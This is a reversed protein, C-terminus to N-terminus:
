ATLLGYKKKSRGPLDGPSEHHGTAVEDPLSVGPGCGPAEAVLALVTDIDPPKAIHHDFGARMARDIDEGSAYGSLAILRAAPPAGSARLRRAVEYGDIVPLGIDCLIVEPAHERAAAVGAEGDHAVHVEHGGLTELLDRLSEAADVNDEIVLVRCRKSQSAVPEETCGSVAAEVSPLTVVFETGKGIGDSRVVVTGGHLEAIGRVLSLGLGLGGTSRHLTRESQVFPEFLKDLMDPAVGVGDDRIRLFVQGAGTEVSLSVHGGADTFKAANQFLNGLVQALRTRDGNVWVAQDPVNVDLSLSRNVFLPRIDEVTERVQQTLDMLATRLRLKGTSIRKVDLLDDVLRALHDVQRAMITRARAAQPSAPDVRSLVHVSNRIPALPNRLEHSLMGLFEDKRRDSERLAEEALKRGTIDLAMGAMRVARGSDDHFAEGKSAVWRVSGDRLAVRMEVEYPVKKALSDQVARDVRDRDDPHIAALFVGYSMATDPSLGFLAKCRDSWVWEDAVINSHWSGMKAADEALRLKEESERLSRATSDQADLAQVFKQRSRKMQRATTLALAPGLLLAFVLGVMLAWRTVAEARAVRGVRLGEEFEVFERFRSRIDNSVSEGDLLHFPADQVTAADRSRSLQREAYQRWRALAARVSTLRAVQAPEDRVLEQLGEITPLLRDDAEGYSKLFQRDGTILHARLRSERDVLLREVLAARGIVVDTHDVWRNLNQVYFVLSLLLGAAVLFAVLPWVM